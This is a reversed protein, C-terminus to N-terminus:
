KSKKKKLQQLYMAIAKQVIPKQILDVFVQIDAERTADLKRLTNGRMLEKTIGYAPQPIKSMMLLQNTATKEVEELPVVRDVLGIKQADQSKFLTGALLALETNRTGIAREMLDAFFFPAVIGLQTENLGIVRDEAMVRYDCMLSLACGGAPSHGNIAAVIPKKSGFVQFYWEHVASWFARLDEEPKNFMELIDFGASFVRGEFASSLLIGKVDSNAELSKFDATVSMLFNKSFSNVPANSLKLSALGTKDDFLINTLESSSSVARNSQNAFLYTSQKSVNKLNKSILNKFLM